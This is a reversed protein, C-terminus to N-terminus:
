CFDNSKLSKGQPDSLVCDPKRKGRQRNFQPMMGRSAEKESARQMSSPTEKGSAANKKLLKQYKQLRLHLPTRKSRRFAANQEESAQYRSLLQVVAWPECLDGFNSTARYSVGGVINSLQARFESARSYDGAKMSYLLAKEMQRQKKLTLQDSTAKIEQEVKHEGDVMVGDFDHPEIEGTEDVTLYGVFLMEAIEFQAAKYHKSSEPIKNLADFSLRAIAASQYRPSEPLSVEMLDRSLTYYLGYRIDPNLTNYLGYRIDPHHRDLYTFIKTVRSKLMDQEEFVYFQICRLYIKFGEENLLSKNLAIELAVDREEKRFVFKKACDLIEEVILLQNNQIALCLPTNGDIDKQHLSAGGELLSDVTPSGDANKELEGRCLAMLKEANELVTITAQKATEKKLRKAEKPHHAHCERALVLATKGEADKADLSVGLDLLYKTTKPKGGGAAIHLATVRDYDSCSNLFYLKKRRESYKTSYVTFIYTMKDVSDNDDNEIDGRDSAAASLFVQAFSGNECYQKFYTEDKQAIDILYTFIHPLANRAANPLFYWDKPDQGNFSAGAELLIRAGEKATDSGAAEEFSTGDDKHHRYDLYSKRFILRESEEKLNQCHADLYKLMVKLSQDHGRVAAYQLANGWIDDESYKAWAQADAELAKMLIEVTEPHDVTNSYVAHELVMRKAYSVHCLAAFNELLLEVIRDHGNEVAWVLPTYGGKESVCEIDVHQDILAAVREYNGAEAAALMENEDATNVHDVVEEHANAEIPGAALIRAIDYTHRM